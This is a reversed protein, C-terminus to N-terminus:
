RKQYYDYLITVNEKAMIQDPVNGGDPQPFIDPFIDSVWHYEGAAKGKIKVFVDKFNRGFEMSFTDYRTIDPADFIGEGTVGAKFGFFRPAKGGSEVTVLKDAALYGPTFLKGMNVGHHSNESNVDWIERNEMVSFLSKYRPIEPIYFNGGSDAATKLQSIFGGSGALWQYKTKAEPSFRGYFTDFSGNLLNVAEIFDSGARDMMGNNRPKMLRNRLPLYKALVTYKREKDIRERLNSTLSRNLLLNFTDEKGIPMRLLTLDMEWDYSAAWEAAAKLSRLFSVLVDLEAKGVMTDGSGYVADLNFKAKIAPLLEVPADAAEGPWSAARSCAEEFDNGFIYKLVDDLFDNFGAPNNGIMNWFLLVDFVMRRGINDKYIDYNLFGSPFINGDVPHLRPLKYTDGNDDTYETLWNISRGTEFNLWDNIIGPVTTLMGTKRLLVRVKSNTGISLLKGLTSYFVAEPNQKDAQYAIEYFSFATDYEESAIANRAGALVAEVGDPKEFEASLEVNEGGITFEYGEKGNTWSAGSLRPYGNKFSYGPDIHNYIRVKTGAPGSTPVAILTGHEGSKLSVSREQGELSAFEATVYIGGRPIAHYYISQVNQNVNTQNAGGAISVSQNHVQFVKLKYGPEPNVSFKIEAGEIGQEPIATISGHESARINVTYVVDIKELEPSLAQGCASLLITLSIFFFGQIVACHKKM